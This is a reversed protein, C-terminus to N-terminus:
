LAFISLLVFKNRDFCKVWQAGIDVFLNELQDRYM